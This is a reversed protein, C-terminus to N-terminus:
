FDIVVTVSDSYAGPRADQGAKMRAYVPLNDRNLTLGSDTFVSTGESEDGWILTRTPNLFINYQLADTGFRLTRATYTASSGRTLSIRMTYNHGQDCHYSIYGTTDLPSPSFVDYTGFTVGAVVTVTCAADAAGAAGLLCCLLVVARAWSRVAPRWATM